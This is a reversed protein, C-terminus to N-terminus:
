ASKDGVLHFHVQRVDQYTGGNILLQYGGEHLRLERVLRQAVGIVDRMIPQNAEDLALFNPIVRKPVILIHTNYSPQPHYFAIVLRTEALRQVPIASSFRAFGLGVVLGGIRSRAIRFLRRAIHSRLSM